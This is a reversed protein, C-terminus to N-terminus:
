LDLLYYILGLCMITVFSGAFIGSAIQAPLMLAVHKFECATISDAFGIGIAVGSAIAWACALTKITLAVVTEFNRM